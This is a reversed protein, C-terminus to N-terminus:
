STAGNWGTVTRGVQLSGWMNIKILLEERRARPSDRFRKLFQGRGNGSSNRRRKHSVAKLRFQHLTAV